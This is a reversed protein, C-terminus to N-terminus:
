PSLSQLVISSILSLVESIYLTFSYHHCSLICRLEVLYWWWLVIRLLLVVIRLWLVIIRMWLVVICLWLIVICLWLIVKRLIVLYTSAICWSSILTSVNAFCLNSSSKSSTYTWYHAVVELLWSMISPIIWKWWHCTHIKTCHVMICFVTWCKQSLDLVFPILVALIDLPNRYFEPIIPCVDIYDSSSSGLCSNVCYFLISRLVLTNLIINVSMLLKICSVFLFCELLGSLIRELM